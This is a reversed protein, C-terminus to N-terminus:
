RFPHNIRISMLAWGCQMALVSTTYQFSTSTSAKIINCDEQQREGRGVAVFHLYNMVFSLVRQVSIM